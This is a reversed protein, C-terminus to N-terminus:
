SARRAPMLSKSGLAAKVPRPVSLGGETLRMYTGDSKLCLFGAKVLSELILTCIPEDIGCLRQMQARTLKMGPMELYEGRIRELVRQDLFANVPKM